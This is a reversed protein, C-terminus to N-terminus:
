KTAEHYLQHGHPYAKVTSTNEASRDQAYDKGQATLNFQNIFAHVDNKEKIDLLGDKFEKTLALKKKVPNTRGGEGSLKTSGGEGPM